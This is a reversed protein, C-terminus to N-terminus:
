LNQANSLLFEEADVSWLGNHKSVLDALKSDTEFDPFGQGLNIAKSKTALASM